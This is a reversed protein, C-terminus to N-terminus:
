NGSISVLQRRSLLVNAIRKRTRITVSGGSMVAVIIILFCVLLIITLSLQQHPTSPGLGITDKMISQQNSM